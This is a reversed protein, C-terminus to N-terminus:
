APLSVTSVSRGRAANWFLLESVTWSVSDISREAVREAAATPGGRAITVHPTYGGDEIGEVPQFPGVLREHLRHLEPSEVALYIVPAPGAVAETFIDLGTVRVEFRSQGALLERARSELHGYPVDEDTRLRKVGLTHEGRPRSHARPLERALESALAAVQGPVPVNLSYVDGELRVLCM